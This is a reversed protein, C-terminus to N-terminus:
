DGEWGGMEKLNQNKNYDVLATLATQLLNRVGQHIFASPKRLQFDLGIKAPGVLWLM